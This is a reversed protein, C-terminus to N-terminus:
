PKMQNKAHNCLCKVFLTLLLSEGYIVKAGDLDLLVSKDKRLCRSVRNSYAISKVM